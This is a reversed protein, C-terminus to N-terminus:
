WRNRRDFMMDTRFVSQLDHGYENLRAECQPRVGSWHLDGDRRTFIEQGTIVGDQLGNVEFITDVQRTEGDRTRKCFVVLQVARVVMEQAAGRPLNEGSMQAYTNLKFLAERSNDGHITCMSGDHGTTMATLVDLAEAGRVEGVIIRDPRMRLANKVLDRITVHGNPMAHCELAVVDDLVHDLYLERTEEITVVREKPDICGCLANLLTTKGSSTGGCILMNIGSRIAASLFTAPKTGLMGLRVMDDLSRERMVFRRITVTTGTALPAIVANLRSGDPLRVDALPTSEDFRRGAARVMDAIVARLENDDAFHLDYRTKRGGSIVFAKDPGNIMIEEVNTDALMAQLRSAGQSPLSGNM